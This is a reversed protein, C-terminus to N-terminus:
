PEFGCVTIRYLRYRGAAGVEEFGPTGGLAALGTTRDSLSLWYRVPGTVAYQVNKRRLADCVDSRTSVDKLHLGILASDADPSLLLSDFLVPKGHFAYLFSSGNAPVGATVVGPPILAALRGLDSRFLM